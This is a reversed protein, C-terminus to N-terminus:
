GDAIGNNATILLLKKNVGVIISRVRLNTDDKSEFLLWLFINVFEEGLERLIQLSPKENTLENDFFKIWGIQEM